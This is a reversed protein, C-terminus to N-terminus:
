IILHLREFRPSMLSARKPTALRYVTKLVLHSSSIVEPNSCSLPRALPGRSFKPMTMQTNIQRLLLRIPKTSVCICFLSFFHLRPSPDHSYSCHAQALNHLISDVLLMFSGVHALVPCNGMTVPPLGPHPLTFPLISM